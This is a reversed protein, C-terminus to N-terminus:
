GKKPYAEVLPSSGRLHSIVGARSRVGLKKYINRRHVKVTAPAVNLRQAIEKNSFGDALECAIDLERGTLSRVGSSLANDEPLQGLVATAPPSTREHGKMEAAVEGIIEGEIESALHLESARGINTIQRCITLGSAHDGSARAATAEVLAAEVITRDALRCRDLAARAAQACARSEEAEGSRLLVWAKALDLRVPVLLERANSASNLDVWRGAEEGLMEKAALIDGTRALVRAREANAVARLRALGREKALAAARNWVDLTQEGRAV